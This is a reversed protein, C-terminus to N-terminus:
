KKTGGLEWENTIQYGQEVGKERSLRGATDFVKRLSTGFYGADESITGHAKVSEMTLGNTFTNIADSIRRVVEEASNGYSGRSLICIHQLPKNWDGLFPHVMADIIVPEQPYIQGHSSSVAVSIKTSPFPIYQKSDLPNQMAFKPIEWYVYFSEGKRIYGLNGYSLRDRQAVQEIAQERKGSKAKENIQEDFEGIAEKKWSNVLAKRYVNEVAAVSAVPRLQYNRDHLNIRLDATTGKLKKELGFVEGEVVYIPANSIVRRLISHEEEDTLLQRLEEDQDTKFLPIEKDLDLQQYLAQRLIEKEKEYNGEKVGRLEKDVIEEIVEKGNKKGPNEVGILQGLDHATDIMLPLVQFLVFNLTKTVNEYNKIEERSRIEAELAETLYNKKFNFIEAEQRRREFQEIQSLAASHVLEFKRGGAQLCNSGDNMRDSIQYFRGDAIVFSSRSAFRAFVTPKDLM